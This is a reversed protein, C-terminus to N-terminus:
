HSCYRIPFFPACKRSTSASCESSTQDQQVEFSLRLVNSGKSPTGLLPKLHGLDGLFPNEMTQHIRSSECPDVTHLYELTRISMYKSAVKQPLPISVTLRGLM